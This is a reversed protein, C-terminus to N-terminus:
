CYSTKYFLLEISHHRQEFCDATSRFQQIVNTKLAAMQSRTCRLPIGSRWLHFRCGLVSSTHRLCPSHPRSRRSLSRPYWFSTRGWPWTWRCLYLYHICYVALCCASTLLSFYVSLLYKYTFFFTSFTTSRKKSKTLFYHTFLRYRCINCPESIDELLKLYLSVYAFM